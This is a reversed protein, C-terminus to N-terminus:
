VFSGDYESSDVEVYVRANKPVDPAVSVVLKCGQPLNARTTYTDNSEATVTISRVLSIRKFVLQDCFDFDFSGGPGTQSASARTGVGKGGFNNDQIRTGIISSATPVISATSAGLWPGASHVASCQPTTGASADFWCGCGETTPNCWQWVSCTGEAQQACCRKECAEASASAESAHTLGDCQVGSANFKFQDSCSDGTQVLETDTLTLLLSINM